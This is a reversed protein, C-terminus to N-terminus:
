ESVECHTYFDGKGHLDGECTETPLPPDPPPLPPSPPSYDHWMLISYPDLEARDSAEVGGGRDLGANGLVAGLMLLLRLNFLPCLHCAM